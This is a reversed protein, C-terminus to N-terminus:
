LILNYQTALYMISVVFVGRIEDKELNALIQNAVKSLM